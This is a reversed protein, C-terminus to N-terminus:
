VCKFRLCFFYKTQFTKLILGIFTIVQHPGLNKYSDLGCVADQVYLKTMYFFLLFYPFLLVSLLSEQEELPLALLRWRYHNLFAKVHRDASEQSLQKVLDAVSEEHHFLLAVEPSCMKLDTCLNFFMPYQCQCVIIEQTQVCEPALQFIMKEFAKSDSTLPVYLELQLRLNQFFKVKTFIVFVLNHRCLFFSDLSLLFYKGGLNTDKKKYNFEVLEARKM